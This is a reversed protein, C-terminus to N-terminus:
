AVKIDIQHAAAAMAKDMEHWLTEIGDFLPSKTM